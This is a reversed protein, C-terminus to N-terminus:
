MCLRVRSSGDDTGGILGQEVKWMVMESVISFLLQVQEHSKATVELFVAGLENGLRVGEETAVERAGDCKSGVLVVSTSESTHVKTFDVWSRIHTFSDRCAVSYVFLFAASNCCLRRIIAQFKPQSSTDWLQLKMSTGKLSIEKSAYDIGVTETHLHRFMGETFQCILASKGTNTDGILVVKCLYSKSAM